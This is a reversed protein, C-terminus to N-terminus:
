RDNYNENYLNLDGLRMYVDSLMLQQKKAAGSLVPVTALENCVGQAGATASSTAAKIDTEGDETLNLAKRLIVRAIDLVQWAGERLDEPEEEAEVGGM